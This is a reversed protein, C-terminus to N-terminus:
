RDGALNFQYRNCELMGSIYNNDILKQVKKVYKLNKPYGPKKKSEKYTGSNYAAVAKCANGNYRELQWMLYKAAWLANIKPNELSKRNGKFGIMKVSQEKLQCLGISPSGGDHENVTNKLGTEHTCIALLLSGAVGVQKAAM